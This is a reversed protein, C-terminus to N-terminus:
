APHFPHPSNELHEGIELGTLYSVVMLRSLAEKKRDADNQIALKKLQDVL